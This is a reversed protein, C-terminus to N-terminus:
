GSTTEGLSHRLDPSNVILEGLETMANEVAIEVAHGLLDSGGGCGLSDGTQVGNGLVVERVQLGDSTFASVSLALEAGAEFTPDTTLGVNFTDARVVIMADLGRAEMAERGAASSVRQVELVLRELTGMVSAELPERADITYSAEECLGEGIPHVERWLQDADVFVGVRAPLPEFVYADLAPTPRVMVTYACGSLTLAALAAAGLAPRLPIANRNTGINM